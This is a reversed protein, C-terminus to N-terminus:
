EDPYNLPFATTSVDALDEVDSPTSDATWEAVALTTDGLGDVIVEIDTVVDNLSLAALAGKAVLLSAFLVIVFRIFM